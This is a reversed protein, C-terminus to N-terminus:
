DPTIDQGWDLQLVLHLLMRAVSTMGKMQNSLKPIPFRLACAQKPYVGFLLKPVQVFCDSEGSDIVGTSFARLVEGRSNAAKGDYTKGTSYPLERASLVEAASRGRVPGQLTPLRSLSPRDSSESGPNGFSFGESFSHM